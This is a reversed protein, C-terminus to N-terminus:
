SLEQDILTQLVNEVDSYAKEQLEILRPPIDDTAAVMMSKLQYKLRRLQSVLTSVYLTNNYALVCMVVYKEIAMCKESAQQFIFAYESESMNPFLVQPLNNMNSSGKVLFSILMTIISYRIQSFAPIILM